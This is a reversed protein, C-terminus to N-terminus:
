LCAGLFDILDANYRAAEEIFPAHGANEYEIIRAGPNFTSVSRCIEPDVVADKGGVFSLVPVSLAALAGRQDLPGLEALTRAALPSSHVFMQWMWSVVQDSVPSACVGQSLAALFNVRDAAM